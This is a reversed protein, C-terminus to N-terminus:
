NEGYIYKLLAEKEGAIDIQLIAAGGEGKGVFRQQSFLFYRDNYPLAPVYYSEINMQAGVNVATQALSLAEDLTVNTKIIGFLDRVLDYLESASTDSLVQRFLATIVERQRETRRFDSSDKRFRMFTLAAEGDLHYTGNSNRKAPTGKNQLYYVETSTLTLDVGGCADVIEVTGSFNVLVYKQIDLGFLRNITNVCLPVGGSAYATNLRNYGLGEIPVLCDRLLSILKAEGTLKNISCVMMVDTRGSMTSLSDAGIILINEIHSEIPDIQYVGPVSVAPPFYTEEWNSIEPDDSGIPDSGEPLTDPVYTDSETIFNLGEYSERYANYLPMVVVAVAVAGIVLFTLFVALTGLAMKTLFGSKHAKRRRTSPETFPREEASAATPEGVRPEKENSPDM